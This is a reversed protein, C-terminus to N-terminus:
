TIERNKNRRNDERENNRKYKKTNIREKMKEKM